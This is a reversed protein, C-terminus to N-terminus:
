VASETILDHFLCRPLEEIVSYFVVLVAIGGTMGEDPTGLIPDFYEFGVGRRRGV